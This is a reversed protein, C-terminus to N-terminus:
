EPWSDGQAGVLVGGAAALFQRQVTLPDVKGYQAAMLVGGAVILALTLAGMEFWPRSIPKASTPRTPDPAQASTETATSM